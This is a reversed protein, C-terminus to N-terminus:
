DTIDCSMDEGISMVPGSVDNWQIYTNGGGGMILYDSQFFSLQTGDQCELMKDALFARDDGPVVLVAMNYDSRYSLSLISSYRGDAAILSGYPQTAYDASEFGVRSAIGPSQAATVSFEQFTITPVEEQLSAEVSLFLAGMGNQLSMVAPIAALAVLAAIMGYEVLSAGKSNKPIAFIMAM